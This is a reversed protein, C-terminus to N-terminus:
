KNADGLNPKLIVGGDWLPVGAAFLQEVWQTHCANLVTLEQRCVDNDGAKGTAEDVLFGVLAQDYEADLGPRNHVSICTLDVQKLAREIARELDPASLRPVRVRVIALVHVDYHPM